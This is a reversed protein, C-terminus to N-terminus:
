LRMSHDFVTARIAPGRTLGTSSPSATRPDVKLVSDRFAIERASLSTWPMVNSSADGSKWRLYDHDASPVYELHGTGTNNRAADGAQNKGIGCRVRAEHQDDQAARCITEGDRRRIAIAAVALNTAFEGERRRAAAVAHELEVAQEAQVRTKGFNMLLVSFLSCEDHVRDGARIPFARMEIALIHEFVTSRGDATQAIAPEVTCQRWETTRQAIFDRDRHCLVRREYQAAVIRYCAPSRRLQGIGLGARQAPQLVHVGVISEEGNPKVLRELRLRYGLAVTTHCLHRPAAIFRFLHARHRLRRRPEEFGLVTRSNRHEFGTAPVGM